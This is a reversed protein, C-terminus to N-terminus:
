GYSSGGTGSADSGELTIPFGGRVQLIGSLEWNGLVGNVIPHWSSGFKKKRGFPLQYIAYSTLVHTVDYYCPGHEARSDYLNQFYPATPIAQGSWSGYYGSSNTMCKSYTYAVQYQLGQSFRKQLTAQLAHYMMDSNSETGSIQSINTLAPNGSLYPSACTLIGKGTFDVANAAACGATGVLRRQFYPMPNMLHTANQGVYGVTLVTEKPFQHEISLNWQLDLSPKVNPDWLRSRFLTTYPFLTSRPPRRIM